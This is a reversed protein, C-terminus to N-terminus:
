NETPTKDASDVIVQEVKAKRPELKLGLKEVSSYVSLGGSPDAAEVIGSDKASGGGAGGMGQSRANAVLDALSMELSVQYSGKLETMDVVQKAGSGGIQMMNTLMDAFGAMTMMDADLHMTMGDMKVQYTGRVGMNMTMAGSRRTMRAPGDPTNIKMEGPKLPADMDLPAAATPSEKMKPGGKGVILGMVPHEQTDIHLKLHFREALLAQLMKPADDKSSGEPMKAAIDFLQDKLWSPGTVQYDKVKYASAILDQLTMYLYEARLGEVYAGFRPMRGAQMDAQLKAPDLPASPRVTAVDFTLDSAAPQAAAVASQAVAPPNAAAPTQALASGALLLGAFSGLALCKYSPIAM